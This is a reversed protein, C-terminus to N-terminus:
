GNAKPEVIYDKSKGPLHRWLQQVILLAEYCSKEDPVILRLGRVDFIEEVTRGKRCYCLAYCCDLKILEVPHPFFTFVGGSSLFRSNSDFYFKCKM